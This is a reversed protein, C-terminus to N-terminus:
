IKKKAIGYHLADFLNKVFDENVLHRLNSNLMFNQIFRFSKM